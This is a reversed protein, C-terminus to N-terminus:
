TQQTAHEAQYQAIDARAEDRMEARVRATLRACVFCRVDCVGGCLAGESQQANLIKFNLSDFGRAYHQAWEFADDRNEASFAQLMPVSDDIVEGIADLEAETKARAGQAFWVCDTSARECARSAYRDSCDVTV